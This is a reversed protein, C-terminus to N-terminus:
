LEFQPIYRDLAVHLNSVTDRGEFVVYICTKQVSTPSPVNCIQFVLKVTDAGKDGAVKVWVESEPILGNHWTLWGSSYVHVNLRKM